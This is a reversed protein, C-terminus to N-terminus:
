RQLQFEASNILAWLIDEFAENRQGVRAIFARCKDLERDTPKRGLSLVYLRRLVVTDDSQEQLLRGLLNPKRSPLRHNITAGNMLLLAQPLTKEPSAGPEFEFATVFEAAQNRPRAFREDRSVAGANGPGELLDSFAQWLVRAPLRRAVRASFFQHDDQRQRSQQQYTRSNVITRLLDKIDYNSARFAGTLRVLV